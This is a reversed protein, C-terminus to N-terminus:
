RVKLSALAFLALIAAVIWFRVVIKTEKWGKKEYHHHIPAMRFIRKGTLKYSTTQAIVSIAELLFLGFIIASLLEHKTLVAMTGLAGGLGLSGVDGMFVQAPPANYWLFGIGAGMIAACFVSLEQVGPVSPIRLYKAVDFTHLITRGDVIEEYRLVTASGYALFLLTAAAIIVPGIALGDLGDTFNVSNGTGVVLFCAFPLYVLLPLMIGSSADTSVFPFYFSMDYGFAPHTMVIYFLVGTLGFEALLRIKGSLGDKNRKTLKMADDIFGIISFGVTMSLVVLVYPNSIDAWLLTSTILSFIIMVGGMTPTGAKESHEPGQANDRVVEGIQRKRLTRIFWPYLLLSIALATVLAAITRFSVYRFVNFPSYLDKLYFFLKFLMFPSVQNLTRARMKKRANLM